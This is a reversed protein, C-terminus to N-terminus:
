LTLSAALKVLEAQRRTGTKAFLRLLHTKVTGDAISLQKATQAVTSGNAIQSFVRAETPTLDFLIAIVDDIVPLSNASPTLFIAATASPRLEARIAGHRLPLVHLVAPSGDQRSAPIGLGRRGFTAEDKEAHLVASALAANAVRDRMALVGGDSSIPDRLALQAEGPRNAHIIRLTRDVLIVPSPVTDLAAAFSSAIMSKVDLVRSITVARQFHPILLRLANTERDGFVGQSQHRGFGLSGVSLADRTLVIAAADIIGQPRVWELLYRNTDWVSVNGDRRFIGPEDQPFSAIKAIGGWVELIEAGYDLTQALYHDSIGWNAVLLPAGSPLAQVVMSGNHFDLAACIDQLTAKWLSPDLVCDYIKGILASLRQNSLEAQM